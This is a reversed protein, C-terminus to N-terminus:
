GNFEIDAKGGVFADDAILSRYHSGLDYLGNAIMGAYLMAGEYRLHSNDTLGELAWLAEGKELNM